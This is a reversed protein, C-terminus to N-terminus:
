NVYKSGDKFTGVYHMTLSDGAKPFNAGDGATITTKTVGMNISSTSFSKICNNRLTTTTNRLTPALRFM